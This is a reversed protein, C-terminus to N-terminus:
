LPTTGILSKRPTNPATSTEQKVISPIAATANPLPSLLDASINESSPQPPPTPPSTTTRSSSGSDSGMEQPQQFQSTEDDEMPKSELPETESLIGRRRRIDAIDGAERALLAAPFLDTNDALLEAQGELSEHVLAYLDQQLFFGLEAEERIVPSLSAIFTRWQATSPGM